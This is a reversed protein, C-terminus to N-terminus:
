PSYASQNGSTQKRSRLPLRLRCRHLITPEKELNNRILGALDSGTSSVENRIVSGILHYRMWSKRAVDDNCISPDGCSQNSPRAGLQVKITKISSAVLRSYTCSTRASLQEQM